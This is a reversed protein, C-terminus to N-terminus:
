MVRVTGIGGSVTIEVRNTASEYDSSAWGGISRPFRSEDVQTKGIAMQSAVRAAVGAPVILTVSALGAEVHASVAGSAPLQVTTESAGTHLELRRIRLASLDVHSRNAGTDLRLDVPINAALGVDWRLTGGRWLAAGYDHPQLDIRGPGVRRQVVGGEFSGSVLMGPTAPGVHLEGGGFHLGIEATTLTGLPINITEPAPARDRVIVAGLLYWVGVGIVAVPWWRILDDTGFAKLEGTTIALLLIGIVAVAIPGWLVALGAPAWRPGFYASLGSCVGGMVVFLPWAQTWTWGSAQQILFM